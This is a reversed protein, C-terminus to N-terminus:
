FKSALQMIVARYSMGLIRLLAFCRSAVRLLAFCRSAIEAKAKRQRRMGPGGGSLFLLLGSSTKAHKRAADQPHLIRRCRAPSPIPMRTAAMIAIPTFIITTVANDGRELLQWSTFRAGLAFFCREIM